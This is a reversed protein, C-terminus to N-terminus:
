FCGIRGDTEDHAGSQAPRRVNADDLVSCTTLGLVSKGTDSPRSTIDIPHRLQPVLRAWREVSM